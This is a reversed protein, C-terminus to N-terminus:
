QVKAVEKENVPRGRVNKASNLQELTVELDKCRTHASKKM